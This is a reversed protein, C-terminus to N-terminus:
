RRPRQARLDTLIAETAPDSFIETLDRALRRRWNPHEDLTGPLNPQELEKALDEIQVFALCSSSRAVFRHVAAVIESETMPEPREVLGLRQLTDLLRAIDAERDRRAGELDSIQGVQARWEADRGALWGRVTPLDHTATCAAALQPYEDPEKFSGDHRREFPLVRYALMGNDHMAERFGEPVTGLDEGIVM